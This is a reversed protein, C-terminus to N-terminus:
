PALAPRWNAPTVVFWGQQVAYQACDVCRHKTLPIDDRFKETPHQVVLTARRGCYAGLVNATQPPVPCKSDRCDCLIAFM